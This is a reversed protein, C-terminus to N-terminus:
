RRPDLEMERPRLWGQRDALLALQTRTGLGYRPRLRQVHTEVTSEGIGLHNAIEGNLPRDREDAREGM